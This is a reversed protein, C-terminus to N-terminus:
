LLLDGIRANRRSDSRLGSGLRRLNLAERLLIGPEAADQTFGSDM